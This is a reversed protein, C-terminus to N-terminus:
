RRCRGCRWHVFQKPLSRLEERLVAGGMMPSWSDVLGECVMVIRRCSTAPTPGGPAARGVTSGGGCWGCVGIALSSSRSCPDGFPRRIKSAESSSSFTLYPHSAGGDGDCGDCGSCADSVPSVCLESRRYCRPCGVRGSVRASARFVGDDDSTGGCACNVEGNGRGIRDGACSAKGAYIVRDNGKGSWTGTERLAAGLKNPYVRCRHTLCLAPHPRLPVEEEM